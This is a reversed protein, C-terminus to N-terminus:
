DPFIDDAVDDKANPSTTVIDEEFLRLRIELEQYEKKM